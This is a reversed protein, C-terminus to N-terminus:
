LPRFFTDASKAQPQASLQQELVVREFPESERKIRYQPSDGLPPMQARVKYTGAVMGSIHADPMFLVDSGLAYLHNAM